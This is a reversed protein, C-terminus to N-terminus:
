ASTGPRDHNSVAFPVSPRTAGGPDQLHSVSFQQGLNGKHVVRVTRGRIVVFQKLLIEMNKLLDVFEDQRKVPTVFRWSPACFKSDPAVDINRIEVFLKNHNPHEIANRIQWLLVLWELDDRLMQYIYNDEGLNHLFWECIQTYNKNDIRDPFFYSM